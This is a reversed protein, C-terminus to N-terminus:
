ETKQFLEGQPVKLLDQGSLKEIFLFKLLIPYKNLLEGYDKLQNLRYESRQMDLDAQSITAKQRELLELQYDKRAKLVELYNSKLILYLEPDPLNLPSVPTVQIIKLEPHNKQLRGVLRNELERLDVLLKMDAASKLSFLVSYIEGTLAAEKTKYWEDLTDPTLGQDKVLTLLHNEAFRFALEIQISFSLDVNKESQEYIGASPFNGSSTVTTKYVTNAFIYLTMNTPIINQWRWIFDSGPRILTNDYGNTKSVMVGYADAPVFLNIWGMVFGAGGLIILIILTIIFKKM